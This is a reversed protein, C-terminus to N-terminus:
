GIFGTKRMAKDKQHHKDYSVQKKDNRYKNASPLPKETSTQELEATEPNGKIQSNPKLKQSEKANNKSSDKSPSHDNNGKGVVARSRGIDTSKQTDDISTMVPIDRNTNKMSQWFKEEEEEARILNNLRKTDKMRVDWNIIPGSQKSKSKSKKGSDELEVIDGGILAGSSLKGVNVIDDYQDDYDDNYEDFLYESIVRKNEIEEKELMNLRAKQNKLFEDHQQKTNSLKLSSKGITVIEAKRKNSISYLILYYAVHFISGVQRDMRQLHAPVDNTILADVTQEFNYHFSKLCALIFAKGYDPFISKLDMVQKDIESESLVIPNVEIKVSKKSSINSSSSKKAEAVSKTRLFGKM